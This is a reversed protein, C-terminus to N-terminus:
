PLRSPVLWVLVAILSPVLVFLDFAIGHALARRAAPLSGRVLRLVREPERYVAPSPALEVLEGEGV